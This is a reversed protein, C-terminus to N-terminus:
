SEVGEFHTEKPFYLIHKQGHLDATLTVLMGEQVLDAVNSAIEDRPIVSIGSLHDEMLDLLRTEEVGIFKKTLEIAVPRAITKGDV